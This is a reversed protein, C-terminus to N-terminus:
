GGSYEVKVIRPDSRFAGVVRQIYNNPILTIALVGPWSGELPIDSGIGVPDKLVPPISYRSLIEMITRFQSEATQSYSFTIGVRTYGSDRDTTQASSKKGLFLYLALGATGVLIITKTNM